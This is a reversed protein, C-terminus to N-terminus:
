PRESPWAGICIVPLQGLCEETTAAKTGLGAGEDQGSNEGSLVDYPFSYVGIAATLATHAISAEEIGPLRRLAVEGAQPVVTLRPEVEWEPGGNPRLRQKFVIEGGYELSEVRPHHSVHQESLQLVYTFPEGFEPVRFVVRFETAGSPNTACKYNPCRQM